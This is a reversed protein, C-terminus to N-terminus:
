KVLVAQLAELEKELEDLPKSAASEAKKTSILHQLQMIRAKTDMAEKEEKAIIDRYELILNIVQISPSTITESPLKGEALTSVMLPTILSERLAKLDVTSLRALEGASVTKNNVTYQSKGHQLKLVTMLDKDMAKDESM